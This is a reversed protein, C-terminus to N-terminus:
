NLGQISVGMSTHGFPNWHLFYKGATGLACWWHMCESIRCYARTQSSLESSCAAKVDVTLRRRVNSSFMRFLDDTSPLDPHLEEPRM